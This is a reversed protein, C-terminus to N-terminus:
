SANTDDSNNTDTNSPDTDSTDTDELEDGPEPWYDQPAQSPRRVVEFADNVWLDSGDQLFVHLDNMGLESAADVQLVVLVEDDTRHQLTVVGVTSPGYLEVSAIDSLPVGDVDHQVLSAVITQGLAGGSPHLALSEPDPAEVDDEEDVDTDGTVDEDPESTEEDDVLWPPKFFICSSLGITLLPLFKIRVAGGLPVAGIYRATRGDAPRFTM